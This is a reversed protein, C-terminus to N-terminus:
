IEALLRAKEAAFEEDTLAGSEHLTALRAILDIPNATQAAAQPVQGPASHASALASAQMAQAQEMREQMATGAQELRDAIAHGVDNLEAWRIKVKAPDSGDVEVPVDDWLQYSRDGHARGHYRAGYRRSGPLNVSLLLEVRWSGQQTPDNPDSWDPMLSVIRATPHDTPVPPRPPQPARTGPSGFGAATLAGLIQESAVGSM